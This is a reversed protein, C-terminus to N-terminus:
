ELNLQIFCIRWQMLEGDSHLKKGIMSIRQKKSELESANPNEICYTLIDYFEEELYADM